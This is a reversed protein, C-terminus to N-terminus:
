ETTESAGDQDRAILLAPFEDPAIFGSYYAATLNFATTRALTRPQYHTRGDRVPFVFSIQHDVAKWSKAGVASAFTALFKQYESRRKKSPCKAMEWTAYPGFREVLQEFLALRTTLTWITTRTTMM